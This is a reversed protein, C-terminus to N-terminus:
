LFKMLIKCRRVTSRRIASVKKTPASIFGRSVPSEGKYGASDTLVKLSSPFAYKYLKVPNTEVCIGKGKTTDGGQFGKGIVNISDNMTLTRGIIVSLIGGTKKLSDWPECTLTATVIAEHYTPVKVIQLASEISFTTHSINNRFTIKKAVPEIKEIILFEHQGPTGIPGEYDGYSPTESVYARIGKMQILLVTDGVEFAAFQGANFGDDKVEVWDIGFSIVRGYSNITGHLNKVQSFSPSIMASLLLLSLGLCKINCSLKGSM